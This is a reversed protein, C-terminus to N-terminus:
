DGKLIKYKMIKLYLNYDFRCDGGGWYDLISQMNPNATPSSKRNKPVVTSKIKIM